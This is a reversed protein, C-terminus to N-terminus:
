LWRIRRGDRKHPVLKATKNNLLPIVCLGENQEGNQERCFKIGRDALTARHWKGSVMARDGVVAATWSGGDVNRTAPVPQTRPSPTSGDQSLRVGMGRAVVRHAVRQTVALPRKAPLM